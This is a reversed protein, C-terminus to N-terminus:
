FTEYKWKLVSQLRKIRLYWKLHETRNQKMKSLIILWGHWCKVNLIWFWGTGGKTRKYM